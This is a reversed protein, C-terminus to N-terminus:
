RRCNYVNVSTGTTQTNSHIEINFSSQSVHELYKCKMEHRYYGTYRRSVDGVEVISFKIIRPVRLAVFKGLEESKGVRRRDAALGACPSGGM